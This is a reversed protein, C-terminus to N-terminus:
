ERPADERLHASATTYRIFTPRTVRGLGCGALEDRIADLKGMRVHRRTQPLDHDNDCIQQECDNDGQRALPTILLMPM